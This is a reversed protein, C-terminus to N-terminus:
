FGAKRWFQPLIMGSFAALRLKKGNGIDRLVVDKYKKLRKRRIFERGSIM